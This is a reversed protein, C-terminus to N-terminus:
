RRSRRWSRARSGAAGRAHGTRGPEAASGLAAEAADLWHGIGDLDGESLRTWALHMALLPRRRVVDEPLAQLWARMTRDERRQRLGTVALEVLEAAQEVDDGALAHPVADELRGHEAYWDAATRHLRAVREPDQAMLRARLAEAFLHHYRWWQREDDLAVVFLNARELAELQQQGDTRGTVADCLPGSLDDLVSTDLLFSRVDEPQGTSCRTSSTTWSSATAGPSRRSSGTRTM